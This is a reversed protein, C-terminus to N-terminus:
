FTGQLSLNGPGVGVSANVGSPKASRRPAPWFHWVLAGAILAAGVGAYGWVYGDKIRDGQLCEGTESKLACDKSLLAGVAIGACVIGASGMIIPGVLPRSDASSRGRFDVEVGIPQSATRPIDLSRKITRANDGQVELVHRGPKIAAFYPTRGKPVGDLWVEAGPPNSSISVWPGPGIRNLSSVIRWARSVAAGLDGDAGVPADGPYAHGQVSVWQLHVSTPKGAGKQDWIMLSLAVEAELLGALRALCDPERCRRLAEPLTDVVKAREVIKYGERTLNTRLTQLAKERQEPLVEASGGPELLIAIPAKNPQASAPTTPKAPQQAAAQTASLVAALAVGLSAATLFSREALTSTAPLKSFPPRMM